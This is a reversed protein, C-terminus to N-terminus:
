QSLSIIIIIILLSALLVFTDQHIDNIDMILISPYNFQITSINLNIDICSRTGRKKKM